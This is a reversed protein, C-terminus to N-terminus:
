KYIEMDLAGKKIDKLGDAISLANMALNECKEVDWGIEKASLTILKGEKTCNILM